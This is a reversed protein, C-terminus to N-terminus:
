TFEKVIEIYKLALNSLYSNKRFSAVFDVSTYPNGVSFCNFPTDISMHKLHTETVFCVGYDKSALNVSAPANSTELIINPLFGFTDFLKDVISRTRQGSIQMIVKEDRLMSLDIWPYKCEKKKVAHKSLINKESTVLLLEEHSIIYYDLDNCKIPLNFFAIDVTGALLMAELETSNAELINLKVNPYAKRFIPLTCPLMYTGRMIPFGVNLEGENNKLIDNMEQDLQKKIDLIQIAKKVYIKGAYTPVLKNGMKRFLKVGVEQEIKQLFKTMTPQTVYVSLAAKTINQHKAVAIIYSLERFDM